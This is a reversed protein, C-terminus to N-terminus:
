PWEDGDENIHPSEHWKKAICEGYVASFASCTHQKCYEGAWAPLMEPCGPQACRHKKRRTM